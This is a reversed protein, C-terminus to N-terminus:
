DDAEAEQVAKRLDDATQNAPIGLAKARAQLDRYSEEPEAAQAFETGVDARVSPVRNTRRTIRYIFPM